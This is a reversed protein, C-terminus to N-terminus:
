SSRSLLQNGRDRLPMLWLGFSLTCGTQGECVRSSSQRNRALHKSCCERVLFPREEGAMEVNGMWGLTLDRHWRRMKFGAVLSSNLIYFGPGKCFPKKCLWSTRESLNSGLAMILVDRSSSHCRLGSWGCQCEAPWLSGLPLIRLVM